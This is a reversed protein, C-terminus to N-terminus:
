SLVWRGAEERAACARVAAGRRAPRGVMSPDTRPRETVVPQLLRKPQLLARSVPDPALGPGPLMEVDPV